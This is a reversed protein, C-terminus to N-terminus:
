ITNLYCMLFVSISDNYRINKEVFIRYVTIDNPFSIYHQYFYLVLIYITLSIFQCLIQKMSDFQQLLFHLIRLKGRSAHTVLKFLYSLIYLCIYLIIVICPFFLYEYIRFEANETKRKKRFSVHLCSGFTSISRICTYTDITTM